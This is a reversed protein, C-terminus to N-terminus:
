NRHARCGCASADPKHVAGRTAGRHNVVKACVNRLGTSVSIRVQRPPFSRRAVRCARRRARSSAIRQPPEAPPPAGSDVPPRSPGAPDDGGPRGRAQREVQERARQGACLVERRGQVRGGPGREIHGRDLGIDGTEDDEREHQQRRDRGHKVEEAPPDPRAPNALELRLDGSGLGLEIARRQHQVAFLM